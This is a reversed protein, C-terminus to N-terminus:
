AAITDAAADTIADVIKHATRLVNAATDRIVAADGDTWGAVYGISYASTDLGIIGAVVYAVSEAECEKVGRHAVYEGEADAEHLLAHAAEHLITKAAQADSLDADVVIRRTSDMTTYGNTDGPIPERTVTWGQGTLYEATAAYIGLEDAGTLRHALDPDTWEETPDTQAIDFVSLLPFYPVVPEGKANRKMGETNEDERAKREAYGFIKISREGKRVQRGLDQWKRFGAVRTATPLQSLILLVNNLSYDHFAQAFTLFRQWADSDRLQEVQEAISAQLQEAQERRQEATKATNIKSAM